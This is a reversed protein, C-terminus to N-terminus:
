RDAVLPQRNGPRSSIANQPINRAGETSGQRVKAKAVQRDQYSTLLDMAQQHLAQAEALTRNLDDDISQRGDATPVNTIDGADGGVPDNGGERAVTGPNDIQFFATDALHEGGVELHELHIKRGDLKMRLEKGSLRLLQLLKITAAARLGGRGNLFTSFNSSEVGVLSAIKRLPVGTGASFTRTRDALQILLPDQPM